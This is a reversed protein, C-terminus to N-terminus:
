RRYDTVVRMYDPNHASRLDTITALVGFGEYDATRRNGETSVLIIKDGVRLNQDWHVTVEGHVDNFDYDYANYYINM